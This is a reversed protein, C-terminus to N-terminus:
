KPANELRSITSQSALPDGSEPCRGVAIKMLPDDRLRNLDNGDKYGCSIAAARSTVLEVMEHRIRSQDRCLQRM